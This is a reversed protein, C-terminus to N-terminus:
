KQSGEKRKIKMWSTTEVRPEVIAKNDAVLKLKEHAVQLRSSSSPDIEMPDIPKALAESSHTDLSIDHPPDNNQTDNNQALDDFDVNELSPMSTSSETEGVDFRHSSTENHNDVDINEVNVDNESLQPHFPHQEM